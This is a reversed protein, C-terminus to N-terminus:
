RRDRRERVFRVVTAVGLALIGLVLLVIFGFQWTLYLDAM